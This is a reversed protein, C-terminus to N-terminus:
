HADFEAWKRSVWEKTQMFNGEEASTPLAELESDALIQEIRAQSGGVYSWTFDIETAVCWARDQPWWVNASRYIWDVHSLTHLADDVAGHLLLYNRQPVSFGPAADFRRHVEPFGEWVGLWCSEPTLTQPRLTAALRVAIERPLNGADVDKGFPHLRNEIWSAPEADRAIHIM